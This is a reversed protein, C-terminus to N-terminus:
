HDVEVVVLVSGGIVLQLVVVKTGGASVDQDVVVKVEMGGATVDHDVVVLTEVNTEVDVVVDTEREVVVAVEVVETDYQGGPGM